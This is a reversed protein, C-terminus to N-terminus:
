LVFFHFLYEFVYIFLNPDTRNGNETIKKRGKNWNCMQKYFTLM